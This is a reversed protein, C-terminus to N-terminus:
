EAQRAMRRRQDESDAVTMVLFSPIAALPDVIFFIPSLAILFFQVLDRM